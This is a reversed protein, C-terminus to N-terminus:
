HRPPPPGTRHLSFALFAPYLCPLEPVQPMKAHSSVGKRPWDSKAPHSPWTQPKLQVSRATCTTLRHFQFVPPLPICFYYTCQILYVSESFRQPAVARGVGLQALVSAGRGTYIDVYFPYDRITALIRLSPRLNLRRCELGYGYYCTKPYEGFPFPYREGRSFFLHGLEHRQHERQTASPQM